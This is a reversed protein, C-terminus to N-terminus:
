GDGGGPRARADALSGLFVESSPARVRPRSVPEDDASEQQLLRKLLPWCTRAGCAGMGVRTLARLAHVDREGARALGVLESASVRECRCVIAEVTIEYDSATPQPVDPREELRVGAVLQALHRPVRLRLALTRDSLKADRARTLEFRGLVRGDAAVATAAQGVVLGDRPMEFAVIVTPHDPSARYDVLTVAQGPCITVCKECGACDHDKSQPALRPLTRIDDADLIIAGRPCIAACPNCPIEQVCHFVPVLGAEPSPNAAGISGPRSSHIEFSHRWQDPAEEDSVGLQRLAELARLRGAFIAATSEAVEAADGACFAPMCSERAKLFLENEPSLGVALLVADCAILRETGAVVRLESDLQAITAATVGDSGHATQIGHGTLVPVGQRLLKRRHVEYGSCAPLAEVVAAVDVGAQLAQYAVILGVNGGGVVLVREAPRVRDRNMLTQFAGAGMVGPLANGPFCLSRERAGTAVILVRPRVLTYKGQEEGGHLIGVVGDGFVGLAPSQSWIEVTSLSRAEHELWAAIDYGRQGAHVAEFSGFFRHTQLMLKGGLSPKDDVLLTEIGRKGLESAASLGAPGGGVILVDVRKREVDDLGVGARAPPLTPLGTAAGLQM